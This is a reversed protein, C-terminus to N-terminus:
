PPLAPLPTQLPPSISSAKLLYSSVVQSLAVPLTHCASVCFSSLSLDRMPNCHTTNSTCQFTRLFSDTTFQIAKCPCFHFQRLIRRVDKTIQLDITSGASLQPPPPSGPCLQTHPVRMLSLGVTQKHMKNSTIQKAICLRILQM